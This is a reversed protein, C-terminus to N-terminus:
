TFRRVDLLNLYVKFTKNAIGDWSNMGAVKSHGKKGFDNKNKIRRIITNALAVYDNPSVSLSNVNDKVMEPIGGTKTAIIPLGAAQAELISLPQGESDSCIVFLHSSKYERILDDGTKKGVFEVHKNLNLKKTLKKLNNEEYGYGVLTLKAEPIEQVVDKMAMILNDVKKIKDFRGVWLIKPYPVKKVKVKDFRKLDIGNGIVKINKNVNKFKLFAKTVSIEADYKIKTLIIKELWFGFSSKPNKEFMRTGHVTFITPKKVFYRILPSLLGPLFAQLHIVDYKKGRILFFARVLFFLRSINDDTNSTSGLQVVNLNKAKEGKYEGNNRTIIDIENGKQAIRKSIEWANIQGGGIAPFWTDIVVAVKM